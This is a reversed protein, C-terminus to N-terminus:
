FVVEVLEASNSYGGLRKKIVGFEYRLGTLRQLEAPGNKVERILGDEVTIEAGKKIIKSVPSRGYIWEYTEFKEKALKLIANWEQEAFIHKEKGTLQTALYEMLEVTSSFAKSVESLNIVSSRVSSVAKTEIEFENEKLCARLTSLDANFLLTGHSLINRRNTFQANGSVKRDKYMINNRKDQSLEIGKKGLANIVPENFYGYNNIKNEAFASIISFNLNGTDHYVTGGGSIRRALQLRNNRLYEFNIEKYISQNKGIVITPQNIYLLLLDAATCDANRVLFEEIALNIYPNNNNRNDVLIV